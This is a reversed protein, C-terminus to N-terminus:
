LKVMTNLALVPHITNHSGGGGVAANTISLGTFGNAITFNGSVGFAGGGGIGGGSTGYIPSPGSGGVGHTHSPDTLSNAHTHSPLEPTTLLHNEEGYHTGLFRQQTTGFTATGFGAGMPSRGALTPILLTKHANFDTVANGSRGGSVPALADACGNYILTYLALTDANARLAAGSLADGITSSDGQPWIWGSSVSTKFTYKVDGTEFTGLLSGLTAADPTNLLSAMFASIPIEEANGAGATLRGVLQGSALTLAHTANWNSPQVQTADTGDGKLSVFAHKIAITM